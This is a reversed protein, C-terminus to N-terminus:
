CRALDAIVGNLVPRIEVAAAGGAGGRSPHRLVRRGPVEPVDVPRPALDLAPDARGRFGPRPQLRPVGRGQRGRRDPLLRHVGPRHVGPRRAGAPDGPQRRARYPPPLLDGADGMVIRRPGSCVSTCGSRPRGPGGNFAFTVPRDAPDAGDLTYLHHVDAGPRPPGPVGRRHDGGRAAGDSRRDRHLGPEAPRGPHTHQSSVLDDAPERRGSDAPEQEPKTPTPESAPGPQTRGAREPSAADDSM